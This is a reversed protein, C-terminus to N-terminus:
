VLINWCAAIAATYSRVWFLIPIVGFGLKRLTSKQRDRRLPCDIRFPM